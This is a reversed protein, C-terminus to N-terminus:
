KALGNHAITHIDPSIHATIVISQHVFSINFNFFTPFFYFRRKRESCKRQTDFRLFQILTQMCAFSHLCSSQLSFLCQPFHSFNHYFFFLSGVITYSHSHTHARARTNKFLLCCRTHAYEIRLSLPQMQTGKSATVHSLRNVTEDIKRTCFKCYSKTLIVMEM